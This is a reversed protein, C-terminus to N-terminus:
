QEVIDVLGRAIAEWTFPKIRKRNQCVTPSVRQQIIKTIESASEVYHFDDCSEFVDPLSGFRTTIVPLNCAMAELVSLPTEIAGNHKLVPFIYYDALNYIEVMNPIYERIVILGERVLTDYLSKDDENFTSGVVIIEFHPNHRKVEILWELNRSRQIHGVHLLVTKDLAINHHERILKKQKLNFQIYQTDDVGLPLPLSPIKLENFQQTTRKSLTIILKPHLVKIFFKTAVNYQRPQLALLFVPKGTFSSLLKSRLVSFISASGSPIYLIANSDHHRIVHYFNNGLLLKNINFYSDVGPLNDKSNLSIIYTNNYLKLQHALNKTAIKAGEDFPLKLNDTIIIM